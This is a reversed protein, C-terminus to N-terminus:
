PSRTTRCKSALMVWTSFLGEPWATVRVRLALVAPAPGAPALVDRAQPDDVLAQAVAAAHVHRHHQPVGKFVFGLPTARKIASQFAEIGAAM